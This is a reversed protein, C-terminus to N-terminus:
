EASEKPAISDKLYSISELISSKASKLADQAKKVPEKILVIKVKKDDKTEPAIGMFQNMADSAEKLSVRADDLSTSADSTDKGNKTLLDILTQTRDIVVQLKDSTTLIDNAIKQKKVLAPDLPKKVTEQAGIASASLDGKGTQAPLDEAFAPAGMLLLAMISSLIVSKKM